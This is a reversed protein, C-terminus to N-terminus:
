RRIIWEQKPSPLFIQTAGGLLTPRTGVTGTQAGAAGEYYVTGRPIKIVAQRNLYQGM